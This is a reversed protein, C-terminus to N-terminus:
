RLLEATTAQYRWIDRCVIRLRPVYGVEWRWPQTRGRTAGLCPCTGISHCLLPDAGDLVRGRAVLVEVRSRGDRFRDDCLPCSGGLLTEFSIPLVFYACAIVAMAGFASLLERRSFQRKGFLKCRRGRFERREQRKEFKQHEVRDSETLNRRSLEADLAAVAETTLSHRQTALHLLEEDGRQSYETSFDIPM